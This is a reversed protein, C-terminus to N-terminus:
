EKEVKKDTKAKSLEEILDWLYKIHIAYNMKIVVPGSYGLSGGAYVGILENLQKSVLGSGSNGSHGTLDVYIRDIKREEEDLRADKNLTQVKGENISINKFREGGLPYGGMIVPSLIEPEVNREALKYYTFEVDPDKIKILGVDTEENMGVVFAEYIKDIRRGKSTFFNVNVKIITADKIVHACTGILGDSTIFFGSGESVVQKGDEDFIKINVSAEQVYKEDISPKKMKKHLKLLADYNIDYKNESSKKKVHADKKYEKVDEITITYDEPSNITRVAQIEYLTELVNRVDRANAFDEDESHTKVIEVIEEVVGEALVYDNDKAMKLAILKLEDPTYNPFDIFRNVRSKFGPNLSMMKIMPNKYGAFIFCIKGRYDEMAKVLTDLAKRGFDNGEEGWQSYLAYAEDVFLVGGMASQIMEQVKNETQGEYKAVLMSRDVEVFTDKPLIGEKHLIAALLRAVVTKGTGPNGSFVMNLNIKNEKNREKKLLAKLRVIQKKVSELGILNNLAEEPNEIGETKLEKVVPKKFFPNSLNATNTPENKDDFEAFWLGDTLSDPDFVFVCKRGASNYFFFRIDQPYEDKDLQIYASKEIPKGHSYNEYFYQNTHARYKLVTGDLGGPMIQGVTRNGSEKYLRYVTKHEDVIDKTQYLVDGTELTTIEVDGTELRHLTFMNKFDADIKFEIETESIKTGKQYEEVIANKGSQIIYRRGHYGVNSYYLEFHLKGDEYHIHPSPKNRNFCRFGWVDNEYILLAHSFRQPTKIWGIQKSKDEPYYILMGGVYEANDGKERTFPQFMIGKKKKKDVESATYHDLLTNEEIAKLQRALYGYHEHGVDLKKEARMYSYVFSDFDKIGAKKFIEEENWCPEGSELGFKITVIKKEDENLEVKLYHDVAARQKFVVNRKYKTVDPRNNLFYCILEYYCFSIKARLTPLKRRYAEDPSVVDINQEEIWSWLASFEEKELGRDKLRLEEISIFGDKKVKELIEDKIENLLNNEAM